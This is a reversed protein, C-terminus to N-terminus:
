SWAGAGCEVVSASGDALKTPELGFAKRVGWLQRKKDLAAKLRASEKPDLSVAPASPLASSPATPAGKGWGVAAALAASSPGGGAGSGSDQRRVVRVEVRGRAAPGTSFTALGQMQAQAAAGGSGSAILEEILEEDMGSGGGGMVEMTNLGGGGGGGSGSSGASGGRRQASQSSGAAAGEDLVHMGGSASRAKTIPPAPPMGPRPVSPPRKAGATAAASASAKAATRAPTSAPSSLSPKLTPKPPSSSSTGSSRSASASRGSGSAAGEVVGRPAVIAGARPSSRGTSVRMHTRSGPQPLPGVRGLVDKLAAAVDNELAQEAKEAKRQLLELARRKATEIDRDLTAEQSRLFSIRNLMAQHNSETDRREKRAVSLQRERATLQEGQEVQVGYANETIVGRAGM